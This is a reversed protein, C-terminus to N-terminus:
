QEVPTSAAAEQGLLRFIGCSKNYYVLHETNSVFGPATNNVDQGTVQTNKKDVVPVGKSATGTSPNVPVTSAGGTPLAVTVPNNEESSSVPHQVKWLIIGQEPLANWQYPNVGFVTTDTDGDFSTIKGTTAIVYIGGQDLRPVCCESVRAIGRFDAM